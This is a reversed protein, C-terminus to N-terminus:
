ETFQFCYNGILFILSAVLIVPRRGFMDSAKGALLAGIAALGPTISVILEQCIVTPERFSEKNVQWFNSLPNMGPNKPLYLM